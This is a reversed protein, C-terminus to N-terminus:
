ILIYFHLITHKILLKCLNDWFVNYLKPSTTFNITESISCLPSFDSDYLTLIIKQQFSPSDRRCQHNKGSTYYAQFEVGSSTWPSDIFDYKTILSEHPGLFGLGWDLGDNSKIRSANFFHHTCNSSIPEMTYGNATSWETQFLSIFLLVVQHMREM